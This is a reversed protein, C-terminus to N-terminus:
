KAVERVDVTFIGAAFLARDFAEVRARALVKYGFSPASNLAEIRRVREANLAALDNAHEAVFDAADKQDSM